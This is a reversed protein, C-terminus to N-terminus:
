RNRANSQGRNIAKHNRPTTEPARIVPAPISSQESSTAELTADPKSIAVPIAPAPTPRQAVTQAPVTPSPNSGIRNEIGLMHGNVRKYLTEIASYRLANPPGSKYSRIYMELAEANKGELILSTGLRWTSSRWWASDAPLVSVARKLHVSAQAPNDLQYHAWGNIEEVRGRLVASLTSKPVLPVNVYDGRTAAITRSEYLESAMVAASPDAVELGADLSQPAAKTLEVVKALAVKKELLQTGAFVLRYVKM